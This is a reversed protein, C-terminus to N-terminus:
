APQLEAPRATPARYSEPEQAEAELRVADSALRVALAALLMLTLFFANDGFSYDFLGETAVALFAATLAIALSHNPEERARLARLLVRALVLAIWILAVAGAIGFQALVTLEVNHAHQYPYNLPGVAGYDPAVNAYNKAGVGFPLHDGVMDLTQGWLVLRKEGTSTQTSTSSEIRQIVVDLNIVKSAPNVGTAISVVGLISLVAVLRRFPRWAVVMWVTIIALALYASRTLALALAMLSLCAAVGGGIRQWNNRGKLFFVVQLPLTMVVFLSLLIPAGLTGTARNSVVGGADSVVQQAGSNQVVAIGAVLAGAAAIVLALRETVSGRESLVGLFIILFMSWMFLEKFVGFPNISLFLGPVHACLLLVFPAVLPANVPARKGTLMRILLGGAAAVAVLEAPTIGVGQGFQNSYTINEDSATGSATPAGGFSITEFPILLVALYVTEIPRLIALTGIAIAALAGLPVLPSVEAGLIALLGGLIGVTLGFVANSGTFRQTATL